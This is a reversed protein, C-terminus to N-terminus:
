GNFGTKRTITETAKSRIYVKHANNQQMSLKNALDQWEEGRIVANNFMYIKITKKITIPLSLVERM